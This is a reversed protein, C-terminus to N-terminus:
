LDFWKKVLVTKDEPDGKHRFENIKSNYIYDDGWVKHNLQIEKLAKTIWLVEEELMTPHLSMRIWGPKQSLDGHNILNTIATPIMM